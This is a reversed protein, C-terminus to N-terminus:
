IERLKARVWMSRFPNNKPISLPVTARGIIKRVMNKIMGIIYGDNNELKYMDGQCLEFGAQDLIDKISQEGVFSLHDPLYLSGPFDKRMIDAGNGTVLVLQGGPEMIDRLEKLFTVPNPLHSLVNIMSIHTYRDNLDSIQINEMQIGRAKARLVKPECPEIGKLVSGPASLDTIAEIFEGFGAGVDLWRIPERALEGDPFLISVKNRYETIKKRSFLGITNLSTKESRHMGSTTATDISNINPRPNVYALACNNCKVMEFGDEKAWPTTNNGGCIYCPVYELEIDNNM